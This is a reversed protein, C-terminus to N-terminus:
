ERRAGSSATSARWVGGPTSLWAYGGGHTMAIGHTALLTSRCRSAGPTRRSIASCRSTRGCRAPTPRTGRTSRWSRCGSCTAAQRRLARPLDRQLRRRRPEAGDVAVVHGVASQLRRRLDGDVGKRRGRQRQGDRRRQLRHLLLLGPRDRRRRQQELGGALGLVGGSRKARFVNAGVSYLVLATGNAKLGAALIGVAGSATAVTTAGGFSQGYDGSERVKVTVGDTDVYFVLVDAGNSTCPSQPTRRVSRSRVVLWLRLGPGADGCAPHSAPEDLSQRACSHALRRRAHDSRSLFRRRRGRVAAGLDAAGRRRHAASDAGACVPDGDVEEPRDPSDSNLIRM